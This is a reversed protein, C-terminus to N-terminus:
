ENIPGRFLLEHVWDPVTMEAIQALNIAVLYLQNRTLAAQDRSLWLAACRHKKPDIKAAASLWLGKLEQVQVQSLKILPNSVHSEM